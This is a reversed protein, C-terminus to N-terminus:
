AADGELKNTLARSLEEMKMSRSGKFLVVADKLGLAEWKDLFDDDGKVPVIHAGGRQVDPAHEGRWFAAMPAVEAILRGLEEHSHGAGPGLERMDALALVLPREGAICKATEISRRMSLPNANYTDDIVTFCGAQRTCFRQADAEYHQAAWVVDEAPVDLAGCAAAVAALNEALHDGCFPAEFEFDGDPTSLKFRGEGNPGAGLFSCTFDTKGALTSFATPAPIIKRAAEWLEFYDSSVVASGGDKLYKLLSAKAEAVGTIDGLGELHAPGVNAVLAVDPRAVSGLEDMDGPQSIGLEMIWLDQEDTAKLMSMPLGIQNNLNRYNKAVRYRNSCALALLEKITTKGASGTVAVLKAGCKERWCAAIRGLAQVTDRVMLVPVGRVDLMKSALIACAGAKAAKEAFEHGDFRDGEICVFLDGKRVTRSDTRVNEVPTEPADGGIVLCREIDALTLKM